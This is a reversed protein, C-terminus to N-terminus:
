ETAELLKEWVKVMAFTDLSCYDLLAKRTHEREEPTMTPMRPYISMAEGGNQYTKLWLAKPCQCYTTYKSKSLNKM